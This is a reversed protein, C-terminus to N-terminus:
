FHNLEREIREIIVKTSMESVDVTLDVEERDFWKMQKRAYQRTEINIREIADDLGIGGEIYNLLHGYGLSDIPHVKHDFGLNLLAKIEEIWGEKLMKDIRLKIRPILVDLATRLYVSFFRRGKNNKQQNKFHETPTKGTIKYIELARILRKHNNLHVIKAYEYDLETLEALLVEAGDRKLRKRLAKRIKENSSSEDFLGKTLARFYLGSGGCVIPLNKHNEIKNIIKNVLDAYEGASIIKSPSRIGILHHVIGGMEENSPQGTGIPMHKYIQRSDLGIIEGGIRKALVVATASKGIATPGVILVMKEKPPNSASLAGTLNM